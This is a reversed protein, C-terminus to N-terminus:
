GLDWEPRLEATWDWCLAMTEGFAIIGERDCFHLISEDFAWDSCGHKDVSGHSFPQAKSFDSEQISKENQWTVTKKRDLSIGTVFYVDYEVTWDKSWDAVISRWLEPCHLAAKTPGLEQLYANYKALKDIMNM